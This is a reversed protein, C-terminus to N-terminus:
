NYYFYKVQLHNWTRELDKIANETETIESQTM